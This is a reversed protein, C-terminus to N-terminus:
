RGVERLFDPFLGVIGIWAILILFRAIMWIMRLIALPILLLPLALLLIM